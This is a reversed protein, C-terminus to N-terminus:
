YGFTLSFDAEVYKLAAGGPSNRFVVYYTAPEAQTPPLLFEVEHDHTPDVTYMATGGGHGQSFDAFQDPNMLIFDIDASDDSISDEGSRKIFSKFTGHLRPIVTHVPVEFAFQAYKKVPFTKHLFNIPKKRTSDVHDLSNVAERPQQKSCGALLLLLALGPLIPRRRM